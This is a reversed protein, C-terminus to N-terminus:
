APSSLCLLTRAQQVAQQYRYETEIFKSKVRTQQVLISKMPLKYWGLVNVKMAM